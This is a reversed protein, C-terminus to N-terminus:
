TGQTVPSGSDRTDTTSREIVRFLDHPSGYVLEVTQDKDHEAEDVVGDLIM